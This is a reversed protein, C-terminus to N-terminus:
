KLLDYIELWNKVRVGKKVNRNWAYDMVITKGPFDLINFPADDILLDVNVLDKRQCIFVNDYPIHPFYKELWEMKVKMNEPFTATVVFLEHKRQLKETVEISHPLPSLSAFLDETLYTYIEEGNKTYKHVDWSKIDEITLNDNYDNNYRQLWCENLNNLINDFDIGIKILYM